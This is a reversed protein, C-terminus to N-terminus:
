RLVERAWLRLAHARIVYGPNDQEARALELLMNERGAAWCGLRKCGLAFALKRAARYERWAAKLMRALVHMELVFVRASGPQTRREKAGKEDFEGRALCYAWSGGRSMDDEWDLVDDHHQLGLWIGTLLRVLARRRPASWGAAHAMALCAPFGPAQKGLSVARYRAFSVPTMELLIGREIEISRLADSDCATADAEAPLGEAIRRLASDRAHRFHVIVEDIEASRRAQRDAIRDTAFAVVVGLFHALVADDVTAEALAPMAEAVLAPAALTVEHGFVESWRVGEPALGLSHALGRAAPQLARPLAVCVIEHLRDVRDNM